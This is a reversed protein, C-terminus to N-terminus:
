DTYIVDASEAPHFLRVFEEEKPTWVEDWKRIHAEIDYTDSPKNARDRAKGQETAGKLSRDIWITLEQLCIVDAPHERLFKAINRIDEKYWVNWQLVSLKM